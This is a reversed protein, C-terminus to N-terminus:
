KHARLWKEIYPYVENPASRSLLLGWHSYNEKDQYGISFLRYTKDEFEIHQYTERVMAPHAWPDLKGGVLLIPLRWTKLLGPVPSAEGEQYWRRIEDMFTQPIPKLGQDLFEKRIEPLVSRDWVLVDFYTENSEEFPVKTRAGLSPDMSAASVKGSAELLYQILRSPYRLYATTGLTIVRDIPSETNQSAYAMWALGGVDLGIVALCREVPVAELAKPIDIEVWDKFTPPNSDVVWVEMGKKQLYRALSYHRDLDYV